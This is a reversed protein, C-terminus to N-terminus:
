FDEDRFNEYVNKPFDTATNVKLSFQHPKSVYRSRHQYQNTEPARQQGFQQWKLQENQNNEVFRQRRQCRREFTCRAESPTLDANIFACIKDRNDGSKRLVQANSAVWDAPKRDKLTLLLPQLGDSKGLRRSRFIDIKIDLHDLVLKSAFTVASTDKSSGLEKIFINRKRVESYVKEHHQLSQIQLVAECILNHVDFALMTGFQNRPSNKM